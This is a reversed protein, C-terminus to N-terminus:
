DTFHIVLLAWITEDGEAETCLLVASVGSGPADCDASNLSYLERPQYM